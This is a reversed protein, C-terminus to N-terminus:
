NDGKDEIYKLIAEPLKEQENLTPFLVQIDNPTDISAYIEVGRDLLSCLKGLSKELRGRQDGDELPSIENELSTTIESMYHRKLTDFIEKESESLEAKNKAIKLAEEQQKVSKYHSRLMVIKDLILALNNLIYFTAVSGVSLEIIFNIWQSGVDVTSFKITEDKHLLYPCQTFIFDIENLYKIYEKLDECTPVKIDIGVPNKSINMSEYLDIIVSMQNIITKNLSEFNRYIDISVKINNENKAYVPIIDYFHEITSKFLAINQLSDIASWYNELDSIEYVDRKNDISTRNQKFIDILEKCLYYINYLRMEYVTGMPIKM